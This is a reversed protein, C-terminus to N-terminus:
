CADPVIQRFLQRPKPLPDQWLWAPDLWFGPLVQSHVRGDADPLIPRYAGETDLAYFDARHHGPRSDVIWYEPVGAAAYERFKHRRDRAVSDPSVIEIALDAPGVLREATLRWVNESKVFFIDPERASTPLRMEAPTAIVIGLDHLDVFDAILRALLMSILAHVLKPPMFVIAEEEVWESRRNEAEPWALWEDYTMAVRQETAAAELTQQAM